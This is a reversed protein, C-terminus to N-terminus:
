ACGVSGCTLADRLVKWNGDLRVLAVVVDHAKQDRTLVLSARATSGQEQVGTLRLGISLPSDRATRTAARLDACLVEDTRQEPRDAAAVSYGLYDSCDGLAAAQVWRLATGGPTRLRRLDVMATLGVALVLLDMVVLLVVGQRRARARRAAAEAPDEELGGFTM